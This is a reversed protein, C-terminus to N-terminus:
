EEHKMGSENLVATSKNYLKYWKAGYQWQQCPVIVGDLHDANETDGRTVTFSQVAVADADGVRANDGNVFHDAISEPAEPLVAMVLQPNECRTLFKSLLSVGNQQNNLILTEHPNRLYQRFLPALKSQRYPEDIDFARKLDILEVGERAQQFMAQEVQWMGRRYNFQFIYVAIVAAAALTALVTLLVRGTFLRSVMQMLLIGCMLSICTLQWAGTYAVCVAFLLNVVIAVLIVTNNKITDFLVGPKLFLTIVATLLTLMVVPVKILDILVYWRIMHGMMDSRKFNAPALTVLLTGILYCIILVWADRSMRKRNLLALVIFGASIGISFSEQMAGAILAVIGLLVTLLVPLRDESFKVKDFMLLIFLSMAGTWLYDAAATISGIMMVLANPMTLWLVAFALILLPWRRRKRDLALLTFCTLLLAWAVTNLAIAPWTSDKSNFWQSLTHILFRGNYDFYAAQQSKVADGFSLVPKVHILYRQGDEDIQLENLTSFGYDDIDRVLWIDQLLFLATGILVFALLLWKKSRM